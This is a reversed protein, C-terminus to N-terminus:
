RAAAGPSVSEYVDLRVWLVAEQEATPQARTHRQFWWALVDLGRVTQVNWQDMITFTQGVYSGGLDPIDGAAAESTPPIQQQELTTQQPLTVGEVARMLVIEDARAATLDDVYSVNNFDRLVWAVVGDRTFGISEDTIVTVPIEFYGLTERQALEVMTERLLPVDQSSARTHWPEAANHADSVGAGWAASLSNILMFALLGLTMGQLTISNGWVSAALLGGVLLFMLTIFSWLLSVRLVSNTGGEAAQSLLTFVAGDSSQLSTRGIV